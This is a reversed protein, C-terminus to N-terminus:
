RGRERGSVLLCTCIAVKPGAVLHQVFVRLGDEAVVLCPLIGYGHVMGLALKCVTCVGYYM